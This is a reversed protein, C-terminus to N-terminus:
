SLPFFLKQFFCVRRPHESGLLSTIRQWASEKNSRSDISRKEAGNGPKWLMMLSCLSCSHAFLKIPASEKEVQVCDGALEVVSEKCSLTIPFPSGVVDRPQEVLFM